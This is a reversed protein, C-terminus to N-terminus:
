PPTLGLLNLNGLGVRILEPAGSLLDVVTTCESCYSETDIVLEIQKGLRACIEDVDTLPQGDKELILTSTVLPLDLEHLLLMIVAQDPIRIGITKRKSALIRPLDRNAELIFTFPGPTATKLTRFQVNDVRAYRAVQGLDACMLTYLHKDDLNRIRTIREVAKTQDALCILAPAADTSTVVVGGARLIEAAQRVLRLQPNDLHIKFLQAM